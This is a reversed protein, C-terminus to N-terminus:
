AATPPREPRDQWFVQEYELPPRYDCWSHLRENNYWYVWEATVRIVDRIDNLSDHLDIAEKKYLANVSEALANDYSDGKRGVSQAIGADALRQAYRIATYQVGRDGHHVLAASLKDSRTALAMELADLALETHLSDSVQWGVIARSFADTVLATYCFRGDALPVYTLDTVWLQNPAPARFDRDVLDVPRRGDQGPITTRPRRRRAVIGSMGERRMLREVTCRAIAIHERRLQRYVKRAGYREGSTTWVRRIEIVAKEDDMARQCPNQERKRAAYYTSTPFELVQCIPEIGFEDRHEDVFRM